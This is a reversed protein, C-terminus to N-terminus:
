FFSKTEHIIEKQTTTKTNDERWLHPMSKSIYNRNELNCFYKSVKEGQEIWRARSRTMVGELKKNTLEKLESKKKM